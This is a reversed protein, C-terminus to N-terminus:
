ICYSSLETAGRAVNVYVRESDRKRETRMFCINASAKFVSKQIWGFIQSDFFLDYNLKYELM